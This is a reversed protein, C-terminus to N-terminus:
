KLEGEIGAWRYTGANSSWKNKSKIWRRATIYWEDGRGGRDCWTATEVEHLTHRWVFKM